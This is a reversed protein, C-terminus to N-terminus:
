SGLMCVKRVHRQLLPQIQVQNVIKLSYSIHDIAAPYKGIIITRPAPVFVLRRLAGMAGGVAM